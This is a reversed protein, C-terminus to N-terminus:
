ADSKAPYSKGVEVEGIEWMTAVQRLLDPITDGDNAILTFVCEPKGKRGSKTITPKEIRIGWHMGSSMSLCGTITLRLNGDFAPDALDGGRPLPGCAAALNVPDM